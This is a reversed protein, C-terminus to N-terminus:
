PRCLSTTAYDIDDPASPSEGEKSIAIGESVAVLQFVDDSKIELWCSGGIPVGESFSVKLEYSGPPISAIGGVDYPELSLDLFSEPDGSETTLQVLDSNLTSDAINVINIEGTGMGVANLVTRPTLQGTTYFYYGGGGVVILGVVAILLIIGCTMICSRGGRRKKGEAPPLEPIAPQPPVDSSSQFIMKTVSGLQIMDNPKLWVSQTIQQGNVFTGYSSGLDAIWIGQDDVTISAHTRSVDEDPIVVQNTTERGINNTGIELNITVGAQSGSLVQLTGSIAPNM